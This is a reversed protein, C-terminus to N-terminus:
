PSNNNIKSLADKVVTVPDIVSFKKTRSLLRLFENTNLFEHAFVCNQFDPNKASEFIHAAQEWFTLDGVNQVRSHWPIAATIVALIPDLPLFVLFEAFDNSESYVNNPPNLSKTIELEIGASNDDVEEQSTDKMYAEMSKKLSEEPSTSTQPLELEEIIVGECMNVVQDLLKSLEEHVATFYEDLEKERMKVSNDFDVIKELLLEKFKNGSESSWCVKKGLSLALAKAFGEVSNPAKCFDLLLATYNVGYGKIYYLKFLLQKLQDFDEFWLKAAFFQYDQILETGDPDCEKLAARTSLIEQETPFAVPINYIIFDRWYVYELDDFLERIVQNLSQSTLKKWLQPPSRLEATVASAWIIDQLILTFTSKPLYGGPSLDLFIDAIQCLQQVTFKEDETVELITPGIIPAQDTVTVEPNILFEKEDLLLETQVREEKEVAARFVNCVVNINAIDNTYKSNIQQIVQHFCSQICCVFEEISKLADYKLLDVRLLVRLTEGRVASDLEEVISIYNDKEKTELESLKPTEPFAFIYTLSM